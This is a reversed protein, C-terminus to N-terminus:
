WRKYCITSQSQALTSMQQKLAELLAWRGQGQHGDRQGAKNISSWAAVAGPKVYAEPAILQAQCALLCSQFLQLSIKHM